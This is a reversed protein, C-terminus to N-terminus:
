MGEKLVRAMDDGDPVAAAPECLGALARAALPVWGLGRRHGRVRANTRAGAEDLHVVSYDSVARLGTTNAIGVRAIEKARDRDGGPWIEVRLVLM